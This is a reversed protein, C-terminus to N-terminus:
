QPRELEMLCGIYTPYVTESFTSNEDFEYLVLLSDGTFYLKFAKNNFHEKNCTLDQATSVDISDSYIVKDGLYVLDEFGSKITEKADSIAALKEDTSMMWTNVEYRVGQGVETYAYYRKNGYVIYTLAGGVEVEDDPLEEVEDYIVDWFQAILIQPTAMQKIDEANYIRFMWIGIDTLYFEYDGNFQITSSKDNISIGDSEWLESQTVHNLENGIYVAEGYIDSYEDLIDQKLSNIHDLIEEDTDNFDVTDYIGNGIQGYIYLSDNYQIMPWYGGVEVEDAYPSEVRDWFIVFPMEEALEKEVREIDYAIFMYICDDTFYIEYKDYFSVDSDKDNVSLDPADRLESDTVHNLENGIYIAETGTHNYREFTTNKMIEFYELVDEATGNVDIHSVNMPYYGSHQYYKGDYKIYLLEDIPKDVTPEDTNFSTTVTTTEVSTDAEGDAGSESTSVSTTTTEETVTESATTDSTPASSATGTEETVTTDSTTNDTLVSCAGDETTNDTNAPISTLNDDVKPSASCSCLSILIVTIVFIVSLKKM